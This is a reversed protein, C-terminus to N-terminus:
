ELADSLPYGLIMSPCHTDLFLQENGQHSEQLSPHHATLYGFIVGSRHIIPIWFNVGPNIDMLSELSLDSNTPYSM